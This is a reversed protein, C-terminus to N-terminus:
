PAARVQNGIHIEGEESYLEVREGGGNLKGTARFRTKGNIQDRQIALGSFDSHIPNVETGSTVVTADVDAAFRPSATLLINGESTKATVHQTRTAPDINISIDGSRTEANVPGSTQRVSIDGGGSRLGLPGAAFIVRVGGGGSSLDGGKRASKVMIEGADTHASLAGFIDGLDLPGGLSVVNCDGLVTGLQVQGAGTQIRANGRIEGIAFNGFNTAYIFNGQVFPTAITERIVPPNRLIGGDGGAVTMRVSRVDAPRSGKKMVYTNGMLSATSMTPGGGANLLGRFTTGDFRGHVPLNTLFDGKISEAVWEVNSDGSLQVEIHGNVTSLQVTASPKSGNTDFHISGNVSDVVAAGTVGELFIDGNTNKVTVNGAVNAVRIHDASGSSAIKVHVNRPVRVVYSVVTKWKAERLPPLVTRIVRVKADGGMLVQTLERGEKMAAADTATVVKEVSVTIGPANGGVIDISGFPNDIWFSGGNELPFDRTFRETYNVNAFISACALLAVILGTTRSFLRM